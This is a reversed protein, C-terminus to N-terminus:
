GRSAPHRHAFILGLLGLQALAAPAGAPVGGRLAIWLLQTGGAEPDMERELEANASVHLYVGAAGLVLFILMATRFLALTAVSPRIVVLVITALAVALAVLPALQWVSETHETLLLETALGGITIVILLLILKRLRALESHTNHPGAATM